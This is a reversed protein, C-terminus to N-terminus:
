TSIPTRGIELAQKPSMYIRVGFYFNLQTIDPPLMPRLVGQKMFPRPWFTLRLKLLM